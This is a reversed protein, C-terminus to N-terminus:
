KPTLADNLHDVIQAADAADAAFAQVQVDRRWASRLSAIIHSLDTLPIISGDASLVSLASSTGDQRARWPTFSHRAVLVEPRLTDVAANWRRTGVADEREPLRGNFAELDGPFQDPRKWLSVPGRIRRCVLRLWPDGDHDRLRQRLVTLWWIDDYEVFAELVDAAERHLLRRDGGAITQLSDLFGNLELYAAPAQVVERVVTRITHQLAAGLQAM